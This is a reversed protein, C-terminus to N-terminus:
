TEAIRLNKNQSIKALSIHESLSSYKSMKMSYKQSRKGVNENYNVRLSNKM